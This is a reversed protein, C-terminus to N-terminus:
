ERHDDPIFGALGAAHRLLVRLRESPTLTLMWDILTLDVGSDDYATASALARAEDEAIAAAINAHTEEDLVGSRVELRGTWEGTAVITEGQRVVVERRDVLVELGGVRMPLLTARRACCSDGRAGAAAWAGRGDVHGVNMFRLVPTGIARALSGRASKGAAEELPSASRATRNAAM